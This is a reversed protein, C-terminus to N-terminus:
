QKENNEIPKAVPLLQIVWDREDEGFIPEQFHKKSVRVIQEEPEYTLTMDEAVDSFTLLTEEPAKPAEEKWTDGGVMAENPNVPEATYAPEGCGSLSFALLLIWLNKM